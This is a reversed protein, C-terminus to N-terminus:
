PCGRGGRGIGGAGREEAGTLAHRWTTARSRCSPWSARAADSGAPLKASLSQPSPGPELPATFVVLRAGQGALTRTVATLSDEDM